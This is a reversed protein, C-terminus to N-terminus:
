NRAQQLRGWAMLLVARAAGRNGWAAYTRWAQGYFTRAGHVANQAQGLEELTNRLGLLCVLIADTM